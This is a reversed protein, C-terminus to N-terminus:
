RSSKTSVSPLVIAVERMRKTAIAAAWRRPPCSSGVVRGSTFAVMFRSALYYPVGPLLGFPQSALSQGLIRVRKHRASQPVGDGPQPAHVRGRCHSPFSAM